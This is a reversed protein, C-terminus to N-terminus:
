QLALLFVFANIAQGNVAICQLANDISCVLFPIHLLCRTGERAAPQRDGRSLNGIEHVRLCSRAKPREQCPLMDVGVRQDSPVTNKTSQIEVGSMGEQQCAATSAAESM